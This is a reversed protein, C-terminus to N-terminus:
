EVESDCRVCRHTGYDSNPCSLASKLAATEVQAVSMKQLANDLSTEAYALAARTEDLEALAALERQEADQRAKNFTEARIRFCAVCTAIGISDTTHQGNDDAGCVPRFPITSLHTVSVHQMM